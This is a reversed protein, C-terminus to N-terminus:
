SMTVILTKKIYKYDINILDILHVQKNSLYYIYFFLSSKSSPVPESYQCYLNIEQTNLYLDWNYFPDLM